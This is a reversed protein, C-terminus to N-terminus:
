VGFYWSLLHFYLPASFCLSDIRDMMGGHGEILTGWDKIGRARKIASMVLGGFFGLICLIFALVFAQRPDCPTLWHLGAGLASSSLIGGILGEWTKKPSLRPAVPHRGCIKGWVYQLVDSGQVVIVLFLILGENGLPLHRFPLHMMMPIHSIFYVCVMLGWQTRAARELFDTADGRLVMLIPLVVFAYVPVMITFMGYWRTSVLWYQYPLVIFFAVFLSGHDAHRTPTATIFERLALFSILAFVVTDATPGAALTGLLVVVMIWWSNVRANLNRVTSRAGDSGATKGLVFGTVSALALVGFVSLLFRQTLPDAFNM